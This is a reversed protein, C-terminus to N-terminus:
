VMETPDDGLRTFDSRAEQLYGCFEAAEEHTKFVGVVIWDNHRQTMFSTLGEHIVPGLKEEHFCNQSPSWLITVLNGLLPSTAVTDILKGARKSYKEAFLSAFKLKMEAREKSETM